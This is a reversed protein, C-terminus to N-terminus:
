TGHKEWGKKINESVLNKFHNLGLKEDEFPYLKRKIPNSRGESYDLYYCLYSPYDSAKEKNSKWFLFKRIATGKKSEKKFTEKKIIKSKPLDKNNLEKFESKPIGSVKIIQDIGCDEFNAKKDSRINVVNCNLISVSRSRGTANLSKNSYEYKLHRIPEDNSKDGQFELLKIECVIEPKIFNYASGNSAIKQFNSNVKLKILKKYLDKRLNTPMNGCSGVHLIENENLYVGLSISRIQNPTNGLTYGTILLDVTEEKKIKYVASDDRVILGEANNKIVIEKFLRNIENQKIRKHELVHSFDKLNEGLIKKLFNYKKEFSGLFKDSVVIDFIGLRLNKKKSNDGLGSITDGYRERDKTLFYLEGALIINKSKSLKKDLDKKIDKVLNSIDNENSNIIKSNKNSKYYFWLQGDIKRSFWYDGKQITDIEDNSVSIYKRTVSNKYKKIAISNDM